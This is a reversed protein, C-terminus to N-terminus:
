FLRARPLTGLVKAALKGQEHQAAAKKRSETQLEWLDTKSYVQTFVAAEVWTSKILM